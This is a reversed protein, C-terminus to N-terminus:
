LLAAHISNFQYSSRYLLAVLDDPESIKGSQLRQIAEEPLDLQCGWAVVERTDQSSCAAFCACAPGHQEFTNNFHSVNSGGAQLWVHMVLLPCFPLVAHAHQHIVESDELM